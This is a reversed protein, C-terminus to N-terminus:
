IQAILKAALCLLRLHPAYRLGLIHVLHIFTNISSWNGGKRFNMDCPPMNWLCNFSLVSRYGVTVVKAVFYSEWGRIRHCCAIHCLMEAMGERIRFYSSHVRRRMHYFGSLVFEFMEWIIRFKCVSHIKFQVGDFVVNECILGLFVIEYVTIRCQVPDWSGIMCNEKWLDDFIYQLFVVTNQCYLHRVCLILLRM